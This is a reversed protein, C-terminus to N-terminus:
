RICTYVGVAIMHVFSWEAVAIDSNVMGNPRARHLPEDINSDVFAAKVDGARCELTTMSQGFLVKLLVGALGNAMGDAGVCRGTKTLCM